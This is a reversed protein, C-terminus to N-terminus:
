PAAKPGKLKSMLFTHFQPRFMIASWCYSYLILVTVVLTQRLWYIPMSGAIQLTASFSFFYIVITLLTIFLRKAQYNARTIRLRIQNDGTTNDVQCQLDTIYSDYMSLRALSLRFLLRLLLLGFGVNVVVAWVQNISLDLQPPLFRFHFVM